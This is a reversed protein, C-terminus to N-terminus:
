DDPQGIQMQDLFERHLLAHSTLQAGRDAVTVFRLAYDPGILVTIALVGSRGDSQLGLILSRGEVGDVIEVAHGLVEVAAGLSDSQLKEIVSLLFIDMTLGDDTGQADVFAQALVGDPGVYSAVSTADSDDFPAWYTQGGCYWVPEALLTCDQASLHGPLVALGSAFLYARTATGINHQCAQLPRM